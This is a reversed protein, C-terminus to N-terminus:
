RVREAVSGPPLERGSPLPAAHNEIWSLIDRYVTERQKDHLLMHWGQDYYALTRPGRLSAMVAATPGKPVLQDNAGYLYLLPTKLRPAISYAEDMLTVLGYVSDFRTERIYLEDKGMARLVDINDTPWIDLGSGTATAAPATHAVLWLASKYLPNMAQWGWIAPAVLIAGAADLGQSLAVMTVAGGMSMGMVYVPLKPHQAKILATVTKLDDVLVDSGPWIGRQATKGFSRQDYAYVTVGRKAFWPAALAFDGSYANFGHVAIMVAKPRKAAWTTLPLRYGDAMVAADKELHPELRIDARLQLQPACATLGGAALGLILAAALIARAILGLGGDSPSWM